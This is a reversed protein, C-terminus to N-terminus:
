KVIPMYLNDDLRYLISGDIIYFEGDSVMGVISYYANEFESEEPGHFHLVVPESNMIAESIESVNAQMSIYDTGDYLMEVVM